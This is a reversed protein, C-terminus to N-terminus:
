SGRRQNRKEQSEEVIKLNWLNEAEGKQNQLVSLNCSEGRVGKRGHPGRVVTLGLSFAESVPPLDTIEWGALWLVTAVLTKRCRNVRRKRWLLLGPRRESKQNKTSSSQKRYMTWPDSPTPSLCWISNPSGKEHERGEPIGRSEEASMSEWSWKRLGSFGLKEM